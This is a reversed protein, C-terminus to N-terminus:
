MENKSCSAHYMTNEMINETIEIVFPCCKSNAMHNAESRFNTNESNMCNSCSYKTEDNKHECQSSKHNEACYRCTPVQKTPCNESVHSGIKQCNYCTKYHVRDFVTCNRFGVFVKYKNDIICDRIIPHLKIIANRVEYSNGEYRNSLQIKQVFLLEFKYGKDVLLRLKDNKNLISPVIEDDPIDVNRITMKPFSKNKTHLKVQQTSSLIEEASKMSQNSPFSLVINGSRSKRSNSVQSKGLTKQLNKIDKEYDEPVITIEHKPSPTFVPASPSLKSKDEIPSSSSDKKAVNSFGPIKLARAYTLEPKPTSNELKANVATIVEQCIEKSTASNKALRFLVKILNKINSARTATKNLLDVLKKTQPKTQPESYNEASLSHLFSIEDDIWAEDIDKISAVSILDEATPVVIPSTAYAMSSNRLNRM